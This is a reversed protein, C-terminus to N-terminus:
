PMPGNSAVHTRGGWLPDTAPPPDLSKCPRGREWRQLGRTDPKPSRRRPSQSPQLKSLSRTTPTSPPSDSAAAM